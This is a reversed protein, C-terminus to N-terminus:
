IFSFSFVHFVKCLYKIRVEEIGSLDTPLHFDLWSAFTDLLTKSCGNSGTREDQRLM